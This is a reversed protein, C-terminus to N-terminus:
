ARQTHRVPLVSTGLSARMTWVHIRWFEDCGGGQWARVCIALDWGVEGEADELTTPNCLSYARM